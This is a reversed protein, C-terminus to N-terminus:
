PWPWPLGHCVPCSCTPRVSAPTMQRSTQASSTLSTGGTACSCRQTAWSKCWHCCSRSTMWLRKSAHWLLTRCCWCSRLTKNARLCLREYPLRHAAQLQPGPPRCTSSVATHPGAQWHLSVDKNAKAAKYAKQAYDDVEAQVAEVDLLVRSDDDLIPEETWMHSQELFDRVSRWLQPNHVCLAACACCVPGLALVHTSIMHSALCICDACSHVMAPRLAAAARRVQYKNNAEKEAVALTSLDDPVADFLSLYQNYMGLAEGLGSIHQLLGELDAVVEEPDSEADM